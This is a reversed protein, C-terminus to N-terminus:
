DKKCKIGELIIEISSKLVLFAIGLGVLIDPWMSNFYAVLFGAIIVSVNAMVDNRSCIWSSKINLDTDKHKILLFFCIVNAILVVSGIISITEATPMVPNLIKNIAAFIIFLGLLAMTAGKIISANVKAKYSRTLVFLSISYVFADGLMDLSDALLANSHALYGAIAETFFMVLNILLVVWFVKRLTRNKDKQLDMDEVTCCDKAM